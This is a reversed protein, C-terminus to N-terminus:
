EANQKADLLLRKLREVHNRLEVAREEKAEATRKWGRKREETALKELLLRREEMMRLATYLTNELMDSQRILLEGGNYVHGTHCRYRVVQDSVMEWLGGGCDPCILPTQEGIGNVQEVGLAIREAIGAETKVDPPADHFVFGNKVTEEIVAGMSQLPLCHDPKMNALVSQVMDPYQAEDPDQVITCGKSRGIASMGSTGDYMLGSLIVGITRSGWHAAASRFLVDIAPRWLNERPGDGLRLFPGSVLLHRNAPALYVHGPLPSIGDSALQCPLPTMAALQEVLLQEDKHERLHLVICVAADLGPKLQGVFERVSQIGGASAGVVVLFRPM